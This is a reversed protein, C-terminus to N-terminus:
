ILPNSAGCAPCTVAPADERVTIPRDCCGCRIMQLVHISHYRDTPAGCLACKVGDPGGVLRGGCRECCLPSAQTMPLTGDGGDRPLFNKTGCAPCVAATRHPEFDLPTSCNYCTRIQESM